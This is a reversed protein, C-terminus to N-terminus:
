SFCYESELVGNIDLHGKRPIPDLDAHADLLQDRINQEFEEFVCTGDQYLDVFSERICTYMVSTDAAQTAFSDHIMFFDEIGNDLMMCIASQMAAADLSHIFNPAVGNQAKAKDLKTQDDTQVTVQSRKKVEAVRDYLFLRVRLNTSKTYRQVVPFGMPSQWRVLKGESSVAKTLARLWGMGTSVSPLVDAVVAFTINALYRAAKQRNRKTGFPHAEIRKYAVDKALPVMLDELIQATFGAVESSYGYTMVNRKVVSRTVGHELWMKAFAKEEAGRDESKLIKTVATAVVAYVDQCKESPVLNVLYGTEKDRLAASYHQVGSNTGDLSPPLHCVYTSGQECYDKYAICAALFQFPKDARSWDGFNSQYDRAAAILQDHNEAVWALRDDFSKKSVKDFDGTNALHIKLWQADQETALVKGRAFQFQAKVHDARHYNWSSVPYMRSRWDMNWCLYFQDYQTMDNATRLDQSMVLVNSTCERKKTHWERQDGRLESQVEKDLDDYDEPLQPFPPPTSMPFNNGEPFSKSEAWCWEVAALVEKNVSLPTAQLANLATVYPLDEGCAFKHEIARRQPGSARRVLSVADSLEASQFGGNDFGTWPVPPCVMPGYLPETWSADFERSDLIAQAAPTLVIDRRTKDKQVRTYQVDFIDCGKLIANIVGAAAQTRRAPKWAEPRYGEKGAIHKTAKLRYRPSSHAKIVQATVRSYMQKDFQKFGEAWVEMEIRKGLKDCASTYTGMAGIVDMCVSLGLYAASHADMLSVDSVWLSPAGLRKERIEATLCEAVDNVADALLKHPENSLSLNHTSLSSQRKAYREHGDLTMKKEREIQDDLLSQTTAPPGTPCDQWSSASVYLGAGSHDKYASATAPATVKAATWAPNDSYGQSRITGTSDDQKSM